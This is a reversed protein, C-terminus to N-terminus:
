KLRKEDTIVLGPMDKEIEHFEIGKSKWFALLKTKDSTDFDKPLTFDVKMTSNSSDIVDIIEGGYQNLGIYSILDGLPRNQIRRSVAIDDALTNRPEGGKTALVSIKKNITAVLMKKTVTTSEFYLKGFSRETVDRLTAKLEDGVIAKAFFVDYSFNHRDKEQQSDAEKRAYSLQDALFPDKVKIEIVPDNKFYESNGMAYLNLLSTNTCTEGYRNGSTDTKLRNVNNGVRGQYIACQFQASSDGDIINGNKFVLPLLHRDTSKIWTWPLYQVNIFEIKEGNLVRRINQENVEAAQTLGIVKGDPDIWVEYPVGTTPVLADLKEDNLVMPLTIPKGIRERVKDLVKLINEKSDKSVKTKMNVLVIQLRDGFKDQLEQMHPFLHVCVSCGKNWVDLILLKGRYDSIRLNDVPSNITEAFQHDPMQMGLQIAQQGYSFFASAILVVSFFICKM